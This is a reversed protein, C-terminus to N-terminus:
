SSVTEASMYPKDRARANFDRPAVRFYTSGHRRFTNKKRKTGGQFLDESRSDSWERNWHIPDKDRRGAYAKIDRERVAKVHPRRSEGDPNMVIM